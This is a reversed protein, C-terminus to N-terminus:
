PLLGAVLRTFYQQQQQQQRRRHSQPTQPQTNPRTILLLFFFYLSRTSHATTFLVPPQDLCVSKVVMSFQALRLTVSSLPLKHQAARHTTTTTSTNTPTLHMFALLWM